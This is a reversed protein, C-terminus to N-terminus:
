SQIKREEKKNEKWFYYTNISSMETLVSLYFSNFGFDGLIQDLISKLIHVYISYIYIHM